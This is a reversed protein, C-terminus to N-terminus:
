ELLYAEELLTQTKSSAHVNSLEHNISGVFGWHYRWLQPHTAWMSELKFLRPIKKLLVNLDLILPCHDFGLGVEHFVQAYPFMPQWDVTAMVRDIRERINAKHMQNNSWTFANGKFVLDM